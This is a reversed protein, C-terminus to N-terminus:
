GSLAGHWAVSQHVVLARHAHEMSIHSRCLQMSIASVNFEALARQREAEADAFKRAMLAEFWTSFAAAQRSNKMKKLMLQM